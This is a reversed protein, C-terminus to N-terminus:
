GDDELRYIGKDGSFVRYDCLDLSHFVVTSQCGRGGGFECDLCLLVCLLHLNWCFVLLESLYEAFVFRLSERWFSCPVVRNLEFAICRFRYVALNVRHVPYLIFCYLLEKM